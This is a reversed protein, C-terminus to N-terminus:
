YEVTTRRLDTNNFSEPRKHPTKSAQTSAATKYIQLITQSFWVKYESGKPLFGYELWWIFYSTMM